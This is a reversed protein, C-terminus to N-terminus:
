IKVILSSRLFLFFCQISIWNQGVAVLAHSCGASYSLNNDRGKQMRVSHLKRSSSDNVVFSVCSLPFPYILSRWRLFRSTYFGETATAKKHPTSNLNWRQLHDGSSSYPFNPFVAQVM